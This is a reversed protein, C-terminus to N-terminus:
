SQVAGDKIRIGAANRNARDLTGLMRKEALEQEVSLVSLMQM